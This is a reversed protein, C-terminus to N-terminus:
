GVKFPCVHFPPDAQYFSLCFSFPLLRAELEHVKQKQNAIDRKTDAEVKALQAELDSIVPVQLAQDRKNDLALKELKGKIQAIKQEQFQQNRKYDLITQDYEAKRQPLTVNLQEEIKNLQSRNQQIENDLFLMTMTKSDDRGKIAEERRQSMAKIHSNLESVQSKLANETSDLGKQQKQIIAVQGNMEKSQLEALNLESELEKKSIAFVRPDKLEELQIQAKNLDTELSKKRVELTNPDLLEDLKLKEKDLKSQIQNRSFNLRKKHNNILRDLVSEHLELQTKADDFKAKSELIVLESGKPIRVDIKPPSANPHNKLYEHQVQPIYSEKIKAVVNDPQDILRVSGDGDESVTAGIEITTSYTYLKPKILAFIIGGLVCLLTVVFIIKKQKVLVLFLDILSIEDEQQYYFQLEKPTPPILNTM